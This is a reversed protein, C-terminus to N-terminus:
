YDIADFALDIDYKCSSDAHVFVVTNGLKSVVFYNGNSLRSEKKYGNINLSLSSGGKIVRKSM